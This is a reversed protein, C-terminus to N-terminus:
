EALEALALFDPREVLIKKLSKEWNHVIYYDLNSLPVGLVNALLSRNYPSNKLGLMKFFNPASTPGLLELSTFPPLKAMVQDLSLGTRRQVEAALTADRPLIGKAKLDAELKRLAEERGLNGLERFYSNGFQNYDVGLAVVVKAYPLGIAEMAINWAQGYFERVGKGTVWSDWNPTTAQKSRAWNIFAFQIRDWVEDVLGPLIFWSLQRNLNDLAIREAESLRGLSKPQPPPAYKSLDLMSLFEGASQGKVWEERRDAPVHGMRADLWTQFQTSIEPIASSPVGRSQLMAVLSAKASEIAAQLRSSAEKMAENWAKLAPLPDVGSAAQVLAYMNLSEGLASAIPQGALESKLRSLLQEYEPHDKATPMGLATWLGTAVSGPDIPQTRLDASSIDYSGSPLKITISAQPSRTRLVESVFQFVAEPATHQGPMLYLNFASPRKPLYSALAVQQLFTQPAKELFKLGDPFSKTKWFYEAAWNRFDADIQNLVEPLESLTVLGESLLRGAALMRLRQTASELANSYIEEGIPLADEWNQLLKMLNVPLAKDLSALLEGTYGSLRLASGVQTSQLFADYKAALDKDPSPLEEIRLVECLARLFAAPHLRVGEAEIMSLNIVNEVMTGKVPDWVKVRVTPVPSGTTYWRAIEGIVFPPTYNNWLVFKPEPLKQYATPKSVVYARVSYKLDPPSFDFQGSRASERVKAEMEKFANTAYQVVAEEKSPTISYGYGMAYEYM